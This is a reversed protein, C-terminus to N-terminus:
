SIIKKKLLFNYIKNTKKYDIKIFKSISELDNKGDSYTLFNMIDSINKYKKTISSEPYLKKKSM